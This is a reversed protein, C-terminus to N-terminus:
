ARSLLAALDKVALVGYIRGTPELLLLETATTRRVAVVLDEGSLDAALTSDADLSRALDGTSTWPRRAEPVAAVAQESVLGTPRGEHDIVVLAGAQTEQLRQLAVSLPTEATVLAARRGLRRAQLLPIRDRVREARLSQTAGVWIFSALFAAWVVLFWDTGNDRGAAYTGAVLVLVAVGRGTQAAAVTGTRDSGTIKWVIARVLYGGDLPLGPLLNFVGVILNSGTLVQVLLRPVPPLDATLVLLAGAAGLLLSVAPGAAAVLFSKGPSPSEREIQTVGGLLHLIIARVPLGFARAVAAHSLEHLLVSVYLLIAFTLSVIWVAPGTVIDDAYPRFMFMILIAVVPWTRSVYIPVGGLVRGMLLGPRPEQDNDM